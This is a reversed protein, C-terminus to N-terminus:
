LILKNPLLFTLAQFKCRVFHKSNKNVVFNLSSVDPKEIKIEGKIEQDKRDILDDVSKLDNLMSKEAEISIMATDLTSKKTKRSKQPM